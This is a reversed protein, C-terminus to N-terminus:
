AINNESFETFPNRLIGRYVLGELKQGMENVSGYLVRHSECEYDEEGESKSDSSFGDDLVKQVIKLNSNMMKSIMPSLLTQKSDGKMAAWNAKQDEAPCTKPREDGMEQM